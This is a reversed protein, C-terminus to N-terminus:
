VIISLFTKSTNAIEIVFYPGSSLYSVQYTNIYPIDATGSSTAHNLNLIISCMNNKIDIPSFGNILSGKIWIYVATSYNNDCFFGKSGIKIATSQWIDASTINSGKTAVFCDSTNTWNERTDPLLIRGVGSSPALAPYVNVDNGSVPDKKKLQVVSDSDPTGGYVLASTDLGGGLSDRIDELIGNQEDIKTGFTSDSLLNLTSSM